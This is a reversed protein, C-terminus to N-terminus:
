SGSRTAPATKRGTRLPFSRRHGPALQFTEGDVVVGVPSMGGAKVDLTLDDTTVTITVLQGRYNISFTVRGLETPLLPHFWLRDERIELGTYCRILMDISGAMAGLHIGENTTSGVTDSLDSDLADGLFAWSRERDARANVWSHVVNSLTSGHTSRATYFEVTRVLADPPFDYGLSKLLARLEEASFLYLLMLVDAQKSLRYNNTSDGEAGLILDLRRISRYRHRYGVWDFEPLDEYGEFQSIVGDSHFPVRLRRAIRAWIEIENEELQVRDWLTGCFQQRLLEVTEIARGLVWATMVNTYANNRVGTGPRGPYGDHFEDPGMVGEIDYRDDVPDYRAISAFFRAVELLLEAGQEVLFQRDGTAQYTQWVSYAIAIGVHRQQRSNDPMWKDNRPNYLATPTEERGDIASQWPFMAGRRGVLRASARAEKLRRYRYGMLARSLEPRRLTLIPYVFVEDWFVHGRYGEGHLGRAPVGADLDAGAAAVTQLVHFTNLNVALSKRPEADLEVAFDGWLTRWAREHDARLLEAGQARALWSTVAATPSAIARDRSTYVMVTKEVRVPQAPDLLLDLEHAVWGAPDTLLRRPPSIAGGARFVRTRAAEAIHIGSETTEMELVITEDDLQEAVRPRLHGNAFLRHEAVNRNTVRGDIASRVQVAGHWDEATFTTVLVALHPDDQSVFRESEVRTTRGAADRFRVTRSLVGRRLDLEQDYTLLGEDSPQFWDGDEVRFGLPLWNPANVLHDDEVQHSGLDTRVRNYVGALYSGPYHVADARVEPAAGRTGWYGNGLTCLTERVGEAQPVFGHFRLAWPDSSSAGGAWGVLAGETSLSLLTLDELIVNAGAALLAEGDPERAVGVALGFGGAVAARIGAESDELVVAMAPPVGLRRAAELFGAPDPKGPLNMAASDNGDIVVDFQGALGAGELIPASNRSSTVLATAVRGRRLTQLLALTDPFVAVGTRTLEELFLAQKRAALGAISLASDDDATTSEPISIGRSGLFQRIGDERIRGDVFRRYDVTVDFPAVPSDTLTPLVEEFLRTWARAHISATDVVVGDLDFIVAEFERQITADGAAPTGTTQM